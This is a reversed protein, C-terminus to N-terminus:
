MLLYIHAETYYSKAHFLVRYILLSQLPAIKTKTTM